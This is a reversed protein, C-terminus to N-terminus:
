YRVGKHVELNLHMKTIVLEELTENTVMIENLDEIRRHLRRVVMKSMQRQDQAWVM